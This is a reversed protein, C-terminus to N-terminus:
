SPTGSALRWIMEQLKKFQEDDALFELPKKGDLENNSKQLWQAIFDKKALESFNIVFWELRNFRAFVREFIKQDVQGGSWMFGPFEITPLDLLESIQREQELNFGACDFLKEFFKRFNERWSEKPQVIFFHVEECWDKSQYKTM